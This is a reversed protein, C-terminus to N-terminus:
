ENPAPPGGIPPYMAPPRDLDIREVDTWPVFGPEDGDAAFVLLGLNDAGLDGACELSLTEGSHLTLRARASAREDPPPLVISAILGFPITYSLAQDSSDLTETTESEDLDYVLRGTLRRGDQTTVAGSLPEGPPYDDYAPSRGAPSFDIREFATWLVLVRGYRPDDVAIRPRGPGTRRARSLEIDGGDLLTVRSGNDPRRTISSVTDFRLRM